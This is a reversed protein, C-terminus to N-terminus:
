ICILNSHIYFGANQDNLCFRLKNEFLKEICKHGTLLLVFLIPLVFV